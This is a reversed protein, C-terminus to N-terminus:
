GFDKPDDGESIYQYGGKDYAIAVRRTKAESELQAASEGCTLCTTYGLAIRGPQIQEMGCDCWTEKLNM